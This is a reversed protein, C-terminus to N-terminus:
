MQKSAFSQTVTEVCLQGEGHLDCLGERGIRGSHVFLLPMKLNLPSKAM